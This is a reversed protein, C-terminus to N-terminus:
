WQRTGDIKRRKREFTWDILGLSSDLQQKNFSFPFGVWKNSLNHHLFMKSAITSDSFNNAENLSDLSTWLAHFQSKQISIRNCKRLARVRITKVLIKFNIVWKRIPHLSILLQLPYKLQKTLWQKFTSKYNRKFATTSKLGWHTLTRILM